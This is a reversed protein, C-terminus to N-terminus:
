YKNMLKILNQDENNFDFILKSLRSEVQEMPYTKEDFYENVIADQSTESEAIDNEELWLRIDELNVDVLEDLKDYTKFKNLQRQIAKKKSKVTENYRIILFFYFNPSGSPLSNADCYVNAFWRITELVNKDHFLDEEIRFVAFVKEFGDHMISETLSKLSLDRPLPKIGFKEFLQMQIFIKLRELNGKDSIAITKKVNDTATKDLSFRKVLSSHSQERVGDLIFFNFKEERDKMRFDISQSVRNCYYKQQMDLKLSSTSLDRSKIWRALDKTIRSILDSDDNFWCTSLGNKDEVKSIGFLFDTLEPDRNETDALAREYIHCDMKRRRAGNFEDITYKGYKTGFIGIYLDCKSLVEMYTEQISQPNAGADKEYVFVEFLDGFNTKILSRVDKFEAM